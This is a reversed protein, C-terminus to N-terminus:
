NLIEYDPGEQGAFIRVKCNMMCVNEVFSELDFIEPSFIDDPSYSVELLSEQGEGALRSMAGNLRVIDEVLTKYESAHKEELKEELFLLQMKEIAKHSEKQPDFGSKFDCNNCRQWEAFDALFVSPYIRLPKLVCLFWPVARGASYFTSCSFSLDRCYRIDQPSFTGTAKPCIGDEGAGAELQPFDIHNPYQQLAFDLREMFSKMSDGPLLAYNLYFGFVIGFDNLLKAKNSYYKKDFLIKGGKEQCDLPIDFSLFLKSAASVLDRDIVSADVYINVYLEPAYREILNIIKILRKKDKAIAQDHITFETIGKESLAEIQSEIEESKFNYEKVM